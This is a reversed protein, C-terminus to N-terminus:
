DLARIRYFGRATQPSHTWTTVSNTARVEGSVGLWLSPNLAAAYQVEYRHGPSSRWALAMKGNAFQYRTFRIPQTGSKFISFYDDIAGTERLFQAHLTGGDVDLVMSGLRLRSIYMVPHDLSGATTQGSSGAVVYVAGHDNTAKIYAGTDDERGSGNNLIM